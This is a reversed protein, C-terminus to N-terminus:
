KYEIMDKREVFYMISVFNHLFQLSCFFFLGNLVTREIDYHCVAKQRKTLVEHSLM